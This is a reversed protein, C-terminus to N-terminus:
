MGGECNMVDTDHNMSSSLSMLSDTANNEINIRDEEEEEDDCDEDDDDDEDEEQLDLLDLVTDKNIDDGPCYMYTLDILCPILIERDITFLYRDKLMRLYVSKMDEYNQIIINNGHIYEPISEHLTDITVQTINRIPSM